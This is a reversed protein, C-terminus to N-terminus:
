IIPKYKKLCKRIRKQSISEGFNVGVGFYRHAEVFTYSQLGVSVDLTLCM